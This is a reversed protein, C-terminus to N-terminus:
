RDLEEADALDKARGTALKNRILEKLGIVPVSQGGIDTDSRDRYAEEFTIGSVSNLVEIRMPPVGMRTIKGPRLLMEPTLQPVDFGFERLAAEARRANEATAEIWVDLDNTARVHGHVGVAYGGILLYHVEHKTLLSLFEAFDPPLQTAM